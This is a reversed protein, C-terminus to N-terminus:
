PPRQIDTVQKNRSSSTPIKYARSLELKKIKCLTRIDSAVCLIAIPVCIVWLLAGLGLMVFIVLALLPEM